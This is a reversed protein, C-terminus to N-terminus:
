TGLDTPVELSLVTSGSSLHLWTNTVCECTHSGDEKVPKYTKTNWDVSEQLQPDYFHKLHSCTLTQTKDFLKAVSDWLNLHHKEGTSSQDPCNEPLFKWRLANRQKNWEWTKRMLLFDGGATQVAWHSPKEPIAENQDVPGILERLSQHLAKLLWSLFM